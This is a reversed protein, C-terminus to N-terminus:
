VSVVGGDRGDRGDLGDRGDREARVRDSVSKLFARIKERDEAKGEEFVGQLVLVLGDLDDLTAVDALKNAHAGLEGLSEDAFESLSKNVGRVWADVKYVRHATYGFSILMMGRRVTTWSPVAERAASFM